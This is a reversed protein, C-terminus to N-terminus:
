LDTGAKKSQKRKQRQQDSLEGVKMLGEANFDGEFVMISAEPTTKYLIIESFEKGEPDNIYIFMTYDDDYIENVKNYGKLVNEAKEVFVKDDAKEVPCIIMMEINDMVASMPTKKLIPRAMKLMAGEVKKAKENTDMLQVVPSDGTKQVAAHINQCLLVM